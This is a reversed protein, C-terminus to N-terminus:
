AGRRRRGQRPRAPRGHLRAGGRLRLRLAAGDHAECSSRATPSGSSAPSRRTTTPASGAARHRRAAAVVRHDDAVMGAPGEASVELLYHGLLVGVQNGTLARLRRATPCRAGRASRRRSRQRARPRRKVKTPSRSCSIWRARRRPTRSRSPRSRRSRARAAAARHPRQTFGARQSRRARGVARRRRAAAHLRHVLTPRRGAAARAARRVAALYADHSRSPSTACSARAAREALTPMPLEDRRGVKAIAAAIGIDHPPIIQAGNGWYVKYGNYEPPNHSATVM